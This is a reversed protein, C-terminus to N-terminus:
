LYLRISHLLMMERNTVLRQVPGLNKRLRGAYRQGIEELNAAM